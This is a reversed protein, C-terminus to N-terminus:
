KKDKKKKWEKRFLAEKMALPMVSKIAKDTDSDNAKIIGDKILTEINLAACFAKYFELEESPEIAEANRKGEKYAVYSLLLSYLFLTILALWYFNM